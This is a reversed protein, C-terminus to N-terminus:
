SLEELMAIVLRPNQDVIAQFEKSATKLRDKVTNVPAATMESVEKITYGYVMHLLLPVRRKPPIRDTKSFFRNLLQQKSMSKEPDPNANDPLEGDIFPMVAMEKKWQRKTVRMAKRYAIKAAWAEISGYGRYQSLSNAVAMAALQVIDDMNHRYGVASRVVEHIRPYVRRMVAETTQLDDVAKQALRYDDLYAPSDTGTARLHPSKAENSPATSTGRDNCKPPSAHTENEKLPGTVEKLLLGLVGEQRRNQTQKTSPISPPIRELREPPTTRCENKGFSTDIDAIVTSQNVKM